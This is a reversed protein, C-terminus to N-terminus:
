MASQGLLINFFVFIDFKLFIILFFVFNKFNLFM